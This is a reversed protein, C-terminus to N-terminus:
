NEYTQVREQQTTPQANVYIEIGKLGLLAGIIGGITLLALVVLANVVWEIIDAIVDLM